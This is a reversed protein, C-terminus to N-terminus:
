GPCKVCLSHWYYQTLNAQGEGFFMLQFCYGNCEDYRRMGRAKQSERDLDEYVLTGYYNGILEGNGLNRASFIGMRVATHHDTCARVQVDLVTCQVALRTNPDIVHVITSM